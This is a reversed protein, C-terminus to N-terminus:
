SVVLSHEMRDFRNGSTLSLLFCGEQAPLICTQIRKIGNALRHQGDSDFENMEFVKQQQQM